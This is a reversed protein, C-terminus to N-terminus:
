LWYDEEIAHTSKTIAQDLEQKFSISVVAKAEGGELAIEGSNDKLPILQIREFKICNVDDEIM